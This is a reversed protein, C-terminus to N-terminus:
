RTYRSAKAAIDAKIRSVKSPSLGMRQAIQGPPLQPKGNEGLLYEYVTKEQPSLDYQLLRLLEGEKSPRLEETGAQLMSSPVERRLESEMASVQSVSWKMHDALEHASPERQLTDGLTAKAANFETIRYIRPEAIRGINQYTTIFRQGRRMQTTVHTNLQVGRNPDFSRIANIAQIQFEAHVAPPPINVKGAYINSRQHILPALSQMLPELEEAKRGGQDWRHWLELERQSRETALKELEAADADLFTEVPNV